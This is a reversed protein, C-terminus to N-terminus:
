NFEIHSIRGESAGVKLYHELGNRFDGNEIAKVVDPNHLLYYFENYGPAGYQAPDIGNPGTSLRTNLYTTFIEAKNDQDDPYRQPRIITWRLLGEENLWPIGGDYYQAGPSPTSKDHLIQQRAVSIFHGTGDNVLIESGQLYRGDVTWNHFAFPFGNDNLLIDLHGDGNVDALRIGHAMNVKLSNYLRIDTEDFYTGGKNIQIQLVGYSYTNSWIHECNIIDTDGDNDIDGMVACVDHSPPQNHSFNTDINEYLENDFYADPLIQINSIQSKANLSKDESISDFTLLLNDGLDINENDITDGVFVKIAGTEEEVSAAVSWADIWPLDIGRHESYGWDGTGISILRFPLGDNELIALGKESMGIIIDEDGDRDFDIVRSSHGGTLYESKSWTKSEIHYFYTPVLNLYDETYNPDVFWTSEDHGVFVATHTGDSNKVVHANNGGEIPSYIVEELADNTYKALFANGCHLCFASWTNYAIYTSGGFSATQGSHGVGMKPTRTDVGLEFAVQNETYSFHSIPIQTTRLFINNYNSKPSPMNTFFAMIKDTTENFESIENTTFELGGDLDANMNRIDVDTISCGSSNLWTNVNGYSVLEDSVKPDYFYVNADELSVALYNETLDYYRYYFSLHSGNTVKSSNVIESANAQAFEFLCDYTQEQTAAYLPSCGIYANLAFLLCPLYKSQM